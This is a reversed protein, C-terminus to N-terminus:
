EIWSFDDDVHGDTEALENISEEYLKIVAAMDQSGYGKASAQIYQQHVLTGVFMPIDNEAATKMALNLDKKALDVTFGPEFNRNLVQPLRKQFQFSTGSSDPLIEYLTEPEIGCGVGLSLVEMSILLNSMSLTNTLLKMLHGQGQEGIHHIESSLADLVDQTKASRLVSEKGGALIVLTGERCQDPGGEVPADILHIGKSQCQDAISRTTEPISTSMDIVVTGETAGNIIGDSGLFAAEIVDPNPLSTILVDVTQALDAASSAENGGAETFSELAEESLDYGYVRFDAELLCRAMNGGMQGLGIVGVTPTAM